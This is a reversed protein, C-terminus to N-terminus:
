CSNTRLVGGLGDATCSIFFNMWENNPNILYDATYEAVWVVGPNRLLDDYQAQLALSSLLALGIFFSKIM